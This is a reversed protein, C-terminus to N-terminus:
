ISERSVILPLNPAVSIVTQEYGARKCWEDIAELQAVLNADTIQTDTATALAYYVVLNSTSLETRWDSLQPVTEDKSTTVFCANFTPSIRFTGIGGTWQAASSPTFMNSLCSAGSTSDSIPIYFGGDQTQSGPFRTWGEDNSGDYIIKEVTKHKYWNENAKYIYDQYTGIKCLEIPTFYPSYTTNLLGYELQRDTANINCSWRLICPHNPTTFTHTITTNAALQEVFIQEEWVGALSYAHMRFMTSAAGGKASVTYTTSAPVKINGYINFAVNADEVGSSNISYGTKYPTEADWLNKGLNVEYSQGQYPEYTTATSGLELQINYTELIQAIDASTPFYQFYVTEDNSFTVTGSAAVYGNSVFSKRRTAHNPNPDNSIYVYVGSMETKGSKLSCSGTYTNGHGFNTTTYNYIGTTYTATKFYNADFLNKGTVTVTQEGTVVNVPEPYDPSPSPIGGVYPEYPTATSGAEIQVELKYNTFTLGSNCFLCFCSPADTTETWTFSQDSTAPYWQKIHTSSDTYIRFATSSSPCAGSIYRLSITKGNLDSAAMTETLWSASPSSGSTFSASNTLKVVCPGTTTGNITIVGDVISATLGYDNASSDIIPCLNKGTYTTQSTDGQYKPSYAVRGWLLRNDKDHITKVDGEPIHLSKAGQVNLSM